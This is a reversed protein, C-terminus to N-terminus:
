AMAQTDKEHIALVANVEAGLILVLATLYLWSLLAIVAGLTGYIVTYNAFNNVYFSFVASALLWCALAVITGPLIKRVPQREDQPLTYLAGLTVFMIVGAVIFRLYHWADIFFAVTGGLRTTPIWGILLDLIRQGLISLVLTLAIVILLVLTFILQKIRYLLPKHPKSLQYARRIDDMFGGAARMPFWITFVLSFWMLVGSSTESVYELYSVFLDIIDNPLVASLANTFYGIDLNLLGLLNSIFIMLPFLAFLLYYALAAANQPVNHAMCNQFGKQLLQKWGAKKKKATKPSIGQHNAQVESVKRLM